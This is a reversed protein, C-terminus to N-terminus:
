LHLNKLLNLKTTAEEDALDTTVKSAQDDGPQPEFEPDPTYPTPQLEARNSPSGVDEADQVAYPPLDLPVPDGLDTVFGSNETSPEQPAVSPDFHEVPRENIAAPLDLVVSESREEAPVSANEGPEEIVTPKEVDVSPQVDPPLISIEPEHQDDINAEVVSRSEAESENITESAQEPLGKAVTAEAITELSPQEITPKTSDSDANEPRLSAPSTGIVATDTDALMSQVEEATNTAAVPHHVELPTPDTEESVEESTVTAGKTAVEDNVGQDPQSSVTASVPFSSGDNIEASDLPELSSAQLGRDFLPDSVPQASFTVASTNPAAQVLEQDDAKRSPGKKGKKKKKDKSKPLWSEISVEETPVTIDPIPSPDSPITQEKKIETLDHENPEDPGVTRVTVGEAAVADEVTLDEVISEEVLGEASNDAQLKSKQKKGKKSKRPTFEAWEEAQPLDMANKQVQRAGEPQIAAESTATFPKESASDLRIDALDSADSAREGGEHEIKSEAEQLDLNAAHDMSISPPGTIFAELDPKRTDLRPQVISTHDFQTMELSRGMQVDPLVNAERSTGLGLEDEMPKPVEEFVQQQALESPVSKKDEPDIIPDTTDQVGGRFDTSKQKGTKSKKGKKVKKASTTIFDGIDESTQHPNPSADESKEQVAPTPPVSPQTSDAAGLDALPDEDPKGSEYPSTNGEKLEKKGKKGKKSKRSSGVVIDALDVGDSPKSEIFDNEPPAAAMKDSQILNKTTEGERNPREHDSPMIDGTADPPQDVVGGIPEQVAKASPDQPISAIAPWIPTKTVQALNQQQVSDSTSDELTRESTDTSQFSSPDQAVGPELVPKSDLVNAAFDSKELNEAGALKSSDQLSPGTNDMATATNSDPILKVDSSRTTEPATHKPNVPSTAVNSTPSLPPSGRASEFEGVSSSQPFDISDRQLSPQMNFNEWGTVRAAETQAGQGQSFTEEAMESDEKLMSPFSSATPTAQQSDLLDDTTYFQSTDIALPNRYASDQRGARIKEMYQEQTMYDEEPDHVSSARSTTHSSPLSPFTEPIPEDQRSKHREILWLPRFETSYKFETSRPRIKPRQPTQPADTRSPTQPLSGTRGAGPSAPMRFFYPIAIPSSTQTAPASAEARQIESLRPHQGDVDTNELDDSVAEYPTSIPDRATGSSAPSAPADAHVGFSQEDPPPPPEPREGLFSESQLEDPREVKVATLAQVSIDSPDRGPIAPPQVQAPLDQSIRGIGTTSLDDEGGGNAQNSLDDEDRKSKSKKSKRSKQRSAEDPEEARSTPMADTAPEAPNDRAKRFINWLSGKQEKQSTPVSAQAESNQDTVQSATDVGIEKADIDKASKPEADDRQLTEKLIDKAGKNLRDPADIISSAKDRPQEVTGSSGNIAPSQGLVGRESVSSKTEDALSGPEENVNSLQEYDQIIASEAARDETSRRKAKKDKRRREKKSMKESVYDEEEMAGPEIVEGEVFGQEQHPPPHYEESGPPSDRRRFTPDNIAIEPDFGADALGAAITAAFVPDDPYDDNISRQNQEQRVTYSELDDDLDLPTDRVGRPEIITFETTEPEIAIIQPLDEDDPSHRSVKPPSQSAKVIPSDQGKVSGVESPAPTPQSLKLHPVWDQPRFPRTEEGHENFIPPVIHTLEDVSQSTSTSQKDRAAFDIGANPDPNTEKANPERSLTAAPAFFAAYDEHVPTSKTKTVAQWYSSSSKQDVPDTARRPLERVKATEEEELARALREQRKRRRRERREEATEGADEQDDAKDTALAAGAVAAAGVGMAAPVVWSDKANSESSSRPRRPKDSAEQIRSDDAVKDLAEEKEERKEREERRRRRRERRDKDSQEETLEFRVTSDERQSKRRKPAADVTASSQLIQSSVSPEGRRPTETSVRRNQILSPGDDPFSGPLDKKPLSPAEQVTTSPLAQSQPPHMPETTVMFEPAHRMQQQDSKQLVPAIPVKPQPQHIPVSHDPPNFYPVNNPNHTDTGYSIRDSAARPPLFNSSVEGNTYTPWQAYQAQRQMFNSPLGPAGFAGKQYQTAPPGPYIPQQTERRQKSKKTRDGWRWGWKSLGSSESSMSSRSGQRRLSAGYALDSDPGPSDEETASEWAEDELPSPDLGEYRHKTEGKPYLGPEKTGVLDSGRGPRHSKRHERAALAAAAAGLGVVAAEAKRHDSDKSKRKRRRSSKRSDSDFALHSDTSSSSSNSFSFFGKSKKKSKKPKRARSPSSSNQRQNQKIYLVSEVDNDDDREKRARRSHTAAERPSRNRRRASSSAGIVSGM